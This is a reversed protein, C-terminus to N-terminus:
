QRPPLALYGLKDHDDQHIHIHIYSSERSTLAQNLETSPAVTGRNVQELRELINFDMTQSVTDLFVNAYSDGVVEFNETSYSVLFLGLFM